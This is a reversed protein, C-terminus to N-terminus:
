RWRSAWSPSIFTHPVYRWWFSAISVWDHFHAMVMDESEAERKHRIYGAGLKRIAEFDERRIYKWSSSATDSLTGPPLKYEESLIFIVSLAKSHNHHKRGPLVESIYPYPHNLNISFPQNRLEEQLGQPNPRSTSSSFASTSIVPITEENNAYMHLWPLNADVLCTPDSSYDLPQKEGDIIQVPAPGLREAAWAATYRALIDGRRKGTKSRSMFLRWGFKIYEKNTTHWAMTDYGPLLGCAERGAGCTHTENHTGQGSSQSCSNM